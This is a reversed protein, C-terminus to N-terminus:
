ACFWKAGKRINEIGELPQLNIYSFCQKQQEPDTLDFSACPRMHDIHWYSGYNDWSMKNDFKSEIYQMFFEISCDLLEMTKKSKYGFRIVKNVRARLCDKIRFEVDNERRQSMYEKAYVKAVTRNKTRYEKQYKSIKEQNNKAYEKYGISLDGKHQEYYNKQQEREKNKNKKYNQKRRENFCKICLTHLTTKDKYFYETTAPKDQGCVRCKKMEAM